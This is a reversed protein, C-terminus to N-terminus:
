NTDGKLLRDMEEGATPRLRRLLIRAVWLLCALIALAAASGELVFRTTPTLGLTMSLYEQSIPEASLKAPLSGANLTSTLYETEQQTFGGAGGAIIGHGEIRGNVRPASLVNGDLVIALMRGTNNGTLDGFLRAGRKDLEFAVAREGNQLATPQASVVSWSRSPDQHTLSKDPTAYVLVYNVGDFSSEIPAAGAQGYPLWQLKDDPQPKTGAGSGQMRSFMERVGPETQDEVLIHFTLVGGMQLVRKLDGKPVTAPAIVEIRPPTDGAGGSAPQPRIVIERMDHSDLRQKLADAMEALPPTAGGGPSHVEYVLRVAPSTRNFLRDGIFLAALVGALALITILFLIRLLKRMLPLRYVAAPVAPLPNSRCKRTCAHAPIASLM